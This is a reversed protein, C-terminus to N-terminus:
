VVKRYSSPSKGTWRKFSRSFTSQESFGLLFSIETLDMTKDRVYQQAIDKRTENLLTIFSTGEEQLLRQLKRTSFFLESAVNDITANGSPLHEVIIKVVKSVLSDSGKGSLYQTMAQDSFEALDKNGSPLIKDV